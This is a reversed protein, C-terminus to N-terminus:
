PAPAGAERAVLIPRDQLEDVAAAFAALEAYDAPSIRGRQLELRDERVLARGEAHETRTFRGFRSEILRPGTGAVKMGPAPVVEIRWSAQEPAPIVLPTTRRAVQVYRRGLEAPFLAAEIVAGGEVPRAVAEAHAAFRLAAPAEPDDLGPAEAERVTVGRFMRSLMGEMAQVRGREDVGEITQKLAAGVVGSFAHRGAVDAGGDPALAIRVQVSAQEPV